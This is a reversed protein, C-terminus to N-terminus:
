LWKNRLIKKRSVHIQTWMNIWEKLRMQDFARKELSAPPGVTDVNAISTARGCESWAATSVGSSYLQVYNQDSCFRGVVSSSGDVLFAVAAGFASGSKTDGLVYAIHRARRTAFFSVIRVLWRNHRMAKVLPVAWWHYGNLTTKSWRKEAYRNCARYLARSLQKQRALETCVVKKGHDQVQGSGGCTSCLNSAVGKSISTNKVGSGHCTPCTKMAM